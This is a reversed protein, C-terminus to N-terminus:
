EGSRIPLLLTDADLIVAVAEPPGLMTWSDMWTASAEANMLYRLRGATLGRRIEIAASDAGRLELQLVLEDDHREFRLQAACRDLWGRTTECWTQVSAATSNGVLGPTSDAGAEINAVVQHLLRDANAQRDVQIAARDIAQARDALGTLFGAAAAVVMGSVILAVLVEILTFGSRSPAMM